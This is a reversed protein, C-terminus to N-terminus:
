LSAQGESIQPARYHSVPARLQRAVEAENVSVPPIVGEETERVLQDVVSTLDGTARFTKLQRDASTGGELIKFAYEVEKRSGLEDLVDGLFWEIFERIM